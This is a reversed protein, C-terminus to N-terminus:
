TCPISYTMYQPPRHGLLTDRHRSFLTTALPKTLGDAANDSTSIATLIIQDTQCWELLAFYKIDMHRTRRTPKQANTM